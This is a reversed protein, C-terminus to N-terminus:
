FITIKCNTLCINIVGGVNHRSVNFKCLIHVPQGVEDGVMVKSRSLTKGGEPPFASHM